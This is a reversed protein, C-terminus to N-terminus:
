PSGARTALRGMIEERPLRAIISPGIKAYLGYGWSALLKTAPLHLAQEVSIGDQEFVVAAPKYLNWDLSRLLPEDMGECDLCLLDLSAHAPLHETLIENITRSPLSLVSYVGLRQAAQDAAERSLTNYVSEPGFSYFPVPQNTALPSVVCNLHVDRPRLSRFLHHFAMNPEVTIGRWGAQYLAFTNSLFAPHYAGIDIYFGKGLKCYNLTSLLAVDEGFQSFALKGWPVRNALFSLIMSKLRTKM